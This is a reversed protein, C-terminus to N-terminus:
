TIIYESQVTNYLVNTNSYQYYFNGTQGTYNDQRYLPVKIESEYKELKQEYVRLCKNVMYVVDICFAYEYDLDPSFLHSTTAM